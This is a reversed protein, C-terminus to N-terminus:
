VIQEQNEEDCKLPQSIARNYLNTITGNFGLDHYPKYMINLNNLEDVTISKQNIIRKCEQMLRDHLLAGIGNKMDKQEAVECKVRKFLLKVAYSLGTIVLGMLVQLWYKILFEPIESV